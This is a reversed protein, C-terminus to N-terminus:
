SFAATVFREFGVADFDIEYGDDDQRIELTPCFFDGGAVFFHPSGKVGSAVGAAYDSLVTADDDSTSQPLGLDGVISAVVARDDITAGDEFLARRLALSCALGESMGVRYAAAEAALAVLTTRPFRDPNFGAFLKPAVSEKLAAVKGVLSAGTLPSGNVLELPWARVAIPPEGGQAERFESIRTLGVHAFPCSIDAYVTIPTM